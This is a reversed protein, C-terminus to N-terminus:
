QVCPLATTIQRERTLLILDNFDNPNALRNYRNIFTLRCFVTYTFSGADSAYTSPLQQSLRDISTLYEFAMEHLKM